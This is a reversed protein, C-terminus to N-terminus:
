WQAHKERADRARTRAAGAGPRRAFDRVTQLLRFRSQGLPPASRGPGPQPGGPQVPERRRDRGAAAPVADCVGEVASVTFGGAFVALRCLLAQEQAPLMDYSWAITDRLTRHRAPADARRGPMDLPESLRAALDAPTLLRVLPGRDRRRAAPRGAPPHHAAVADANEATVAFGPLHARVRDVLLRVSDVQELDSVSVPHDAAAGRSATGPVAARRGSQLPERSTLLIQLDNTSRRLDDVVLRVDPLHELNDLVLLASADALHESLTRMPDTGASAQLGIAAAITAPVQAVERILAMEVFWGRRGARSQQQLVEAALRSKGAGGPGTLTVLRHSTLLASVQRM